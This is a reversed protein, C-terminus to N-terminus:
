LCDKVMHPGGCRLCKLPGKFSGTGSGSGSGTDSSREQSSTGRSHSRSSGLYLGKSFRHPTRDQRVPGAGGTDVTKGKSNAEFIRSKSVLIPLDILQFVSVAARINPRLGQEFQACLDEEGYGHQYHPWYKMLEQFKAAYEGVIMSGQKLELFEHAKQKGLDRLFYNGLFIAKFTEWQIYDGEQPLTQSAFRWWDEVEGCLLYTAYSVKHEECCGM